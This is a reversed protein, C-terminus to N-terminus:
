APARLWAATDGPLNGDMVPHSSLLLEGAPLPVPDVGFNVVLVLGDDTRLALTDPGGELWTLGRGGRTLGPRLRLADRYLALLSDPDADQAQATITAWGPPMPLWTDSMASFGYPPESGSWPMPVRVADRGREAHNTREWVPDQLAGDPLAVDPEGVEEGYYLYAVGPLGLLLLVAARSRRLGAPGDPDGPDDYRSRHRPRDHNSLVWCPPTDGGAVTALSRQVAERMDQATWTAELLRFHFGMHLEDPRIYRTFAEDTSVWIEGVAMAGPYQDLVRRVGRHYAHVQPDDFRPDAPERGGQHEMPDASDLRWLASEAPADPLGTPKALGHAVDIRFGDVGRDLWFRITRELDAPVDPHTWDLDPQEAAFLHLYWDGDSLRTWAPGGFVSTWNNPPRASDEQGRRFHFRARSPSGPPDALAERFWTHESSVHNPVLDITVAIGCAHAAAVMADFGALDGFSPDVGRPDAVDYGHDVMPSPYFPTIWVADVGLSALHPLHGRLGDLDGIGDGDSDAFSRIYVQYFVAHRWWDPTASRDFPM